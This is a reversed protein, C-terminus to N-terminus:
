ALKIQETITAHSIIIFTKGTTNASAKTSSCIYDFPTLVMSQAPSIGFTQALIVALATSKLEHSNLRTINCPQELGITISSPNKHPILPNWLAQLEIFPKNAHACQVFCYPTDPTQKKILKAISLYTDIHGVGVLAPILEHKIHAMNTHAALLNGTPSFYSWTSDLSCKSLLQGFQILENSCRGTFLDAIDIGEVFGGLNQQHNALAIFLEQLNRLGALLIKYRRHVIGLAKNVFYFHQSAEYLAFPIGIFATLLKGSAYFLNGINTANQNQLAETLTGLAGQDIVSKAHLLALPLFCIIALDDCRRFVELLQPLNKDPVSYQLFKPPYLRAIASSNGERQWLMLFDNEIKAFQQLAKDLQNYLGPSEVLAKIIRQRRYIERVSTTPQALMQGFCAYGLKTRCLNIHSFLNSGQFLELQEATQEDLVPENWAYAPLSCFLLLVFLQNWEREMTGEIGTYHQCLFISLTGM